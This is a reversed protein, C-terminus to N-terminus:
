FKRIDFKNKSGNLNKNLRDSQCTAYLQKNNKASNQVYLNAILDEHEFQDM